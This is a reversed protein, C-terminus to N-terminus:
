FDCFETWLYHVRAIMDTKVTEDPLPNVSVCASDFKNFCSMACVRTRM